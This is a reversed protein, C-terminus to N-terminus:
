SKKDYTEKFEKVLEKIEKDQDKIFDLCKNFIKLEINIENSTKLGTDHPYLEKFFEMCKEQLAVQGQMYGIKRERREANTMKM